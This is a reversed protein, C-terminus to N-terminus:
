SRNRKPNFNILIGTFALCPPAIAITISYLAGLAWEAVVRRSLLLFGLMGITLLMAVATFSAVFLNEIGATDQTM